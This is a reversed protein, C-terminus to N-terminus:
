FLFYLIRFIDSKMKHLMSTNCVGKSISRCFCFMSIHRSFVEERDFLFVSKIVLIQVFVLFVGGEDRYKEKGGQNTRSHFSGNRKIWLFFFGHANDNNRQQKDGNHPGERNHLVWGVKNLDRMVQAGDAGAGLSPCLRVTTPVVPQTKLKAAQRPVVFPHILIVHGCGRGFSRHSNRFAM